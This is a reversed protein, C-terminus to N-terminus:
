DSEENMPETPWPIEINLDRIDFLLKLRNPLEEFTIVTLSHLANRFQNYSDKQRHGLAAVPGIVLLGKPHVRNVIEKYGRRPWGM